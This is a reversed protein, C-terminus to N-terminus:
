SQKQLEKMASQQVSKAEIAEEEETVQELRTTLTM